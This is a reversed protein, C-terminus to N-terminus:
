FERQYSAGTATYTIPLRLEKGTNPKARWRRCASVICNDLIPSGTSQAMEAGTAVGTDSDFTIICVGSGMIHRSRAEFPYEPRPMNIIQISRKKGAPRGELMAKLQISIEAVQKDLKAAEDLRGAKTLLVVERANTNVADTWIRLRIPNLDKLYDKQLKVLEKPESVVDDLTLGNKQGVRDLERRVILAPHLEGVSEFGKLLSNLDRLYRSISLASEQVIQADCRAALSEDSSNPSATGPIANATSTVAVFIMMLLPRHLM